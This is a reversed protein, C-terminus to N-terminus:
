SFSGINVSQVISAEYFPHSLRDTVPKLMLSLVTGFTNKRGLGFGLGDVNLTTNAHVYVTNAVTWNQGSCM